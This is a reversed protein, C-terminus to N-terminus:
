RFGGYLIALGILLLFLIGAALFGATFMILGDRRNRELAAFKADFRKELDNVVMLLAPAKHHEEQATPTAIVTDVTLASDSENDIQAFTITKLQENIVPVSQGLARLAKVHKLVEIDRGNFRKVQGTPPNAGDSLHSAHYEAWRRVNHVAVGVLAAAEHPTFTQEPQQTPM